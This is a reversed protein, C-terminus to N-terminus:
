RKAHGRVNPHILATAQYRIVGDDRDFFFSSGAVKLTEHLVLDSIESFPACPRVLIRLLVEQPTGLDLTSTEPLLTQM